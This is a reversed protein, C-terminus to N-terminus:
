KLARQALARCSQLRSLLLVTELKEADRTLREITDLAARLENEGAPLTSPTDM